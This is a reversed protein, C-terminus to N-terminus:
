AIEVVQFTIVQTGRQSDAQLAYCGAERIRISSPLSGWGGQSGIEWQLVLQPDDAQGFGIWNPGDMQRGRIAVSGTVTPKAMWLVKSYSWGDPYHSRGYSSSYSLVGEQMEGMLAYVPGAGVAPGYGFSPSLDHAVQQLSNPCASGAPLAGIDLSHFTFVKTFGLGDVQWGYCGPTAIHMLSPWMRWGKPVNAATSNSELFDLEPYLHTGEFTKVPAGSWRNDFSEFLVQGSGDIRGGRIRIPGSYSPYAGWAVKNLHEPGSFELNKAFV